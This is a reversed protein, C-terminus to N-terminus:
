RHVLLKLGEPHAMVGKKNMFDELERLFLEQKRKVAKLFVTEKYKESMNKVNECFEELTLSKLDEMEEPKNENGLIESFDESTVYRGFFLDIAKDYDMQNIDAQFRLGEKTAAGIIDRISVDMFKACILGQIALVTKERDQNIAIAFMENKKEYPLKKLMSIGMSPIKRGKLVPNDKQQKLLESVLVMLSDYDINQLEFIVRYM